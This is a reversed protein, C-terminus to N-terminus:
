AGPGGCGPTWTGAAPVEVVGASGASRLEITRRGLDAQLTLARDIAAPLVLGDTHDTHEGVLNARGPARFTRVAGGGEGALVEVVFALEAFSV